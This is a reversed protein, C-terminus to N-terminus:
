GNPYKRKLEELENVVGNLWLTRRSVPRSQLVCHACHEVMAVTVRGPEM